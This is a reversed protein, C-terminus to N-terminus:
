TRWAPRLARAGPLWWVCQLPFRRWRRRWHAAWLEFCTQRRALEPVACYNSLGASLFQRSLAILFALKRTTKSGKQPAARPYESTKNCSAPTSTEVTWSQLSTRKPAVGRFRVIVQECTAAFLHSNGFRLNADGSVAVSVTEADDVGVAREEGGVVNDGQQEIVKTSLRPQFFPTALDTAVV